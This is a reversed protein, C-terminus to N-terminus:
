LIADRSSFLDFLKEFCQNISDHLNSSNSANQKENNESNVQFVKKFFLVTLNWWKLCSHSSSTRFKFRFGELSLGFKDDGLYDTKSLCYLFKVNVPNSRAEVWIRNGFTVRTTDGVGPKNGSSEYLTTRKVRYKVLATLLYYLYFFSYWSCVNATVSVWSANLFSNHLEDRWM